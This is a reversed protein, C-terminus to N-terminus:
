CPCIPAKPGTDKLNEADWLGFSLENAETVLARPVALLFVLVMALKVTSRVSQVSLRLRVLSSKAVFETQTRLM